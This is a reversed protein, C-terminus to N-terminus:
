SANQNNNAELNAYMSERKEPPNQNKHSNNENSNKTDSEKGSEALISALSDFQNITNTDAMENNRLMGIIDIIKSPKEPNKRM